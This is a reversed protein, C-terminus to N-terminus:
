YPRPNPEILGFSLSLLIIIVILASTIVRKGIFKSMPITTDGKVMVFMARFLNVIMFILLGVILLKIFMIESGSLLIAM